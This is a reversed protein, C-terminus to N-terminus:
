EMIIGIDISYAVVYKQKIIKKTDVNKLLIGTLIRNVISLM